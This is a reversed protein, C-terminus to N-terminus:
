DAVACYDEYQRQNEEAQTKPNLISDCIELSQRISELDKKLKESLKM